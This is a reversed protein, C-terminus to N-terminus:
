GKCHYERKCRRHYNGTKWDDQFGALNGYDEEEFMDRRWQTKALPDATVNYDPDDFENDSENDTNISYEAELVVNVHM